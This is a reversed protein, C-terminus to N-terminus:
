RYTKIIKETGDATNIEVLEITGDEYRHLFRNQIGSASNPHSTYLEAKYADVVLSSAVPHVLDAVEAASMDFVSKAPKKSLIQHLTTNYRVSHVVENWEDLPIFVGPQHTDRNIIVKM